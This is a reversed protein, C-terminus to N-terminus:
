LTAWCRYSSTTFACTAATQNYVGWAAPTLVSADPELPQAGVFIVEGPYLQMYRTTQMAAVRNGREFCLNPMVSGTDPIGMVHDAAIEFEGPAVNAEFIVRNPGNEDTAPRYEMTTTTKTDLAREAADSIYLRAPNQFPRQVFFCRLWYFDVDAVDQVM